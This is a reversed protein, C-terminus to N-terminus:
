CVSNYHKKFIEVLEASAKECGARRESDSSCKLVNSIISNIMETWMVTLGFYQDPNVFKSMRFEIRNNHSLNIWSGHEMAMDDRRYDGFTRGVVKKTATPHQRLYSRLNDFIERRYTRIINMNQANLWNKDGINIHQGCHYDSFDVKKNMEKFVGRVGRLGNYTPTKFEVGNRPLSGDSTPIMKWKQATVYNRNGETCVCEFEFGYTKGSKTPKNVQENNKTSYSKIEACRNCLCKDGVKVFENARVPRSCKCCRTTKPVAYIRKAKVPSLFSTEVWWGDDNDSNGGIAHLYEAIDPHASVFDTGLRIGAFAGDFVFIQGIVGKKLIEFDNEIEVMQYLKLSM